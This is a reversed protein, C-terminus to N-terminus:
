KCNDCDALAKKASEVNWKTADVSAACSSCIKGLVDKANKKTLIQLSSESNKKIFLDDINGDSVVTVADSGNYQVGAPENAKRLLTLNKGQWIVEYFTYNWTIYQSSGIQASNIDGAKYKTKTDGNIVTLEGKKRINDKISGTITTNNPLVVQGSVAQNPDNIPSPQAYVALNLVLAFVFLNFVKKM